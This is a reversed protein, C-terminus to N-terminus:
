NRVALLISLPDGFAAHDARFSAALQYFSFFTTPEASLAPLSDSAKPKHAQGDM